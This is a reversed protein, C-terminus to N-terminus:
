VAIFAEEQNRNTIRQVNAGRVQLVARKRAEASKSISKRMVALTVERAVVVEVGVAAGGVAIRGGELPFPAGAPLIYVLFKVAEPLRRRAIQVGQLGRHTFLTYIHLINM